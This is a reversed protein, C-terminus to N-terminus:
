LFNLSSTSSALSVSRKHESLQIKRVRQPVALTTRQMGNSLTAAAFLAVGESSTASIAPAESDAMENEQAETNSEEPQQDAATPPQRPPAIGTLFPLLFNEGEPTGLYDVINDMSRSQHLLLYARNKPSPLVGPTHAPSEPPAAVDGQAQKM